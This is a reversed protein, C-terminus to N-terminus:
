QRILPLSLMGVWAAIQIVLMATLIFLGLRNPWDYKGKNFSQQINLMLLYGFAVSLWQWYRFQHWHIITNYWYLLAAFIPTIFIFVVIYGFLKETPNQTSM